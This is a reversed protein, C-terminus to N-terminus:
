KEAEVIVSLSPFTNITQTQIVKSRSSFPSAIQINKFGTEELLKILADEDYLTKHNAYLLEHLAEADDHAREVGVNVYRYEKIEGNLYKRTIKATDPVSIRIIGGPKLVRCCETLFQKGEVRTFHELLHSHFIIDVINDECPIGKSIDIQRFRYAQTDAFQRLDIIDINVWGYYFMNKYSGINLKYLDDIYKIVGNEGWLGPAMSTPPQQYPNEYEVTRPYEIQIPYEPAISKFKDLWFQKNKMTVHTIDIDKDAEVYGHDTFHIAHLGRKSVRVMEQIVSDIKDEPIHELLNSSFCLDIAKNAFGWPTITIDCVRMSDTARTHWCHHSIDLGTVKIGENELVRIVYGRGCGVDLVSEPKLKAIFRATSYHTCFDRYERYGITGDEFYEREFVEGQMKFVEIIMDTKSVPHPLVTVKFGAEGFLKKAYEPSFGAKHCGGYNPFEQSGFIREVTGKNVGEEVVSRCQELLNATIIVARGNPKLIRHIEKIFDITKRWEVHEITYQCFVGDYEGTKLPWPFCSLDHIIDVTPEKIIDVNPRIIPNKGGGLEITKGSFPLIYSYQNKTLPVYPMVFM